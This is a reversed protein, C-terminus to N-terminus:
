GCPWAAREAYNQTVAFQWCKCLIPLMWLKAPNPSKRSTQCRLVNREEVEASFSVESHAEEKVLMRCKCKLFFVFYIGIQVQRMKVIRDRSLKCSLKRLTVDGLILWDQVFHFVQLRKTELIKDRFPRAFSCSLLQRGFLSKWTKGSRIHLIALLRVQFM